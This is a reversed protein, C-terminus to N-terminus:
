PASKWICYDVIRYFSNNFYLLAMLVNSLMTAAKIAHNAAIKILLDPLLFIETSIKEVSIVASALLINYIHLKKLKIIM